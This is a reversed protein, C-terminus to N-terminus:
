AAHHLKGGLHLTFTSGKGEISTVSLDGGHERAIKKSISLGLGSGRTKTTFFPNFIKKLNETSIGKGSDQVIILVKDDEQKTKIVVGGNEDIADIANIVLNLIIQKIQNNDCYVPALGEQLETSMSLNQETCEQGLLSVSEHILNNIDCLDPEPKVPKAFNLLTTTLKNIRKVESSIIDVFERILSGETNKHIYTAAGGISNLPNKIEHALTAALEGTAALRCLREQEEIANRLQAIVDNFAGSLEGIEDNSYIEIQKDLGEDVLHVVSEKLQLIPKVLRIILGLGFMLASVLTVLLLLFILLRQGLINIPAINEYFIVIGFTLLPIASLLTFAVLARYLISSDLKAFEARNMSLLLLLFGLPRFIHGHFWVTSGIEAPFFLFIAAICILLHGFASAIFRKERTRYFISVYLIFVVGSLYSVVIWVLPRFLGFMPFTKYVQPFLMVLLPIYLLLYKKKTSTKEAAIAIILTILGFCYGLLTQYLLNLDLHAAHIFSHALSSLGLIIFAAGVLFIRNSKEVGYVDSSMKSNGMARGAIVLCIIGIMVEELIHYTILINDENVLSSWDM